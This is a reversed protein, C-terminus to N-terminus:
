QTIASNKVEHISIVTEAGAGGPTGNLMLDGAAAPGIRFNLTIPSSGSIPFEFLEVMEEVRPSSLKRTFTRIPADKGMLFIAVVVSGLSQSQVYTRIHVRVSSPPDKAVFPTNALEFGNTIRAKEPDFPIPDSLVVRHATNKLVITQLVKERRDWLGLLWLTLVFSVLLIAIGGVVNALIGIARRIM